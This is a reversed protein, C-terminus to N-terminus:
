EAAFLSLGTSTALAVGCFCIILGANPPPDAKDDRIIQKQPTAKAVDVPKDNNAASPSATKRASAHRKTRRTTSKDPQPTTQQSQNANTSPEQQDAPKLAEAPQPTPTPAATPPQEQPMVLVPKKRPCGSLLGAAVFLVLVAPNIRLTKM